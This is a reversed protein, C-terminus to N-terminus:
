VVFPFSLSVMFSFNHSGSNLTEWLLSQCCPILSLSISAVAGREAGAKKPSLGPANEKGEQQPKDGANRLFRFM